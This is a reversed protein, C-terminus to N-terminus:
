PTGPQIRADCRIQSVIQCGTSQTGVLGNSQTASEIAAPLRLLGNLHFDNHIAAAVEDLLDWAREETSRADDGLKIALVTLQITYSEDRTLPGLCQWQGTHQVDGLWILNKVNFDTTEAPAEWSLRVGALAPRAALLELIRAKAEPATSAPM